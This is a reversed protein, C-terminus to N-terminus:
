AEEGTWEDLLGDDAAAALDTAKFATSWIRGFYDQPRRLDLALAEDLLGLAALAKELGDIAQGTPEFLSHLYDATKDDPAREAMSGWQERKRHWYVLDAGSMVFRDCGECDLKRPCEGGDVVPQFTCFGGEAPTSRRSLDLALAEAEARSMEDAPSAILTGPAASGPGSVWVHQLVDEIESSAVKAYHEAMRVSVQGLYKRIHHLGAGHRLLNTALTHRAQHPVVSGLDLKDIWGSFGTHFFTYSIAQTARPNRIHSPFLAMKKREAKTPPRGYREEFRGLTVRQRARIRQYIREPIRIAEDYNGVKTQDHWLLPLGGYRGICELRLNLVEGCRRGSFVLTEWIDRVGRNHSDHDAALQQLNHEDALARAVEDSFPSRQREAVGNGGGHPLATIFAPSLGIKAAEGSDLADRLVLRGYNFMFRLSVDTVPTPKKTTPHIVGLHPLGERARNRHDAVFRKMHDGDLLTQDHGGEPATLTLFASLEICARRCADFPTNSRSGAPDDLRSALHDWLLDRLWRQSVQTLDFQSLRHRFRIGFHETDIYGLEKSDTRTFYVQQLHRRIEELVLRGRRHLQSEPLEEDFLSAVRQARAVDVIRQLWQLPWDTHQSRAAHTIMGWRIEAQVMPPLGRLNVQGARTAARVRSCWVRFAGKDECSTLVQRGAQEHSWWHDLLAAGGPRGDEGYWEEHTACLGLPTRAWSVCATARCQGYSPLAEQVLLWDEFNAQPNDRIAAKWRGTHRQCLKRLMNTVPRGPCLQCDAPESTTETCHLPGTTRAYTYRNLEPQERHTQLWHLQHPSCLDKGTTRPTTCVEVACQWAYVEHRPPVKILDDRYFPEITPAKILAELLELRDRVERRDGHIDVVPLLVPPTESTM